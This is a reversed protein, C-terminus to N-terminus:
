TGAPLNSFAAAVQARTAGNAGATFTLGGVTVSDGSTMEAADFTVQATETSNVSGGQQTTIILPAPGSAPAALDTLNAGATGATTTIVTTATGTAALNDVNVTPTTSTFNLVSSGFASQGQTTTRAAQTGTGTAAAFDTVNSNAATATFVVNDTTGATVAASDFAGSTGATFSGGVNRNSLSGFATGSSISAFASALEAATTGSAGATWTLGNLIVTQGATIASFTQSATETRGTVSGVSFASGVTGAVTADGAAMGFQTNITVAGTGTNTVAALRTNINGGTATLAVTLPDGAVASGVYTAYAGTVVAGGATAGTRLATAVEAATAGAAATITLGDIILTEGATLASATFQSIQTRNTAAAATAGATSQEAFYRAVNDATIGNAGATLTVGNLTLTQGTTMDSFQVSATETQAKATSTYQLTNGVAAGATTYGTLAGTMVGLETGGVSVAGNPRNNQFVIALNSGSVDLAGATFTQGALTISQGAALTGFAVIASETASTVGPTVNITPAKPLNSSLDAVDRGTVTPTFSLSTSGFAQVSANWGTFATGAVYSGGANGNATVVTASTTAGTMGASIDAVATNLTTSTFDVSTLSGSSRAATYNALANSVVAGGTTTGTAFATAIDAATAGTVANATITRGAITLTAAAALDTFSIRSVQTQAALTVPVAGTQLGSFARAVNDATAGGTGATFTLGGLTMSQGEALAQFTASAAETSGAAGDVVTITPTNGVTAAAIPSVVTNASSSTFTTITNNVGSVGGTSFGSMAGSFTGFVSQNASNLQASTTGNQINAFAAAAQTATAGNIGATFTLGAITLTTNAGMASFNATDIETASLSGVTTRTITPPTAASLQTLNDV